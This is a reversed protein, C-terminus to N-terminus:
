DTARDLRFGLVSGPLAPLSVLVRQGFNHRPGPALNKVLVRGESLTLIGLLIRLRVRRTPNFDFLSYLWRAPRNADVYGWVRRYGADRLLAFVGRLVETATGRGRHEAAVYYAFGYADGEELHVDQLVLDPHEPDIHRDVWWFLGIVEQGRFAVAGRYRNRLYKRVYWTMQPRHTQTFRLLADEDSPEVPRVLLQPHTPRPPDDELWKSLVLREEEHYARFRLAWYMEWVSRNLGQERYLGLLQRLRHSAVSM